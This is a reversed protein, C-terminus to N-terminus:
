GKAIMAKANKKYIGKPKRGRKPADPKKTIYALIDALCKSCFQCEDLPSDDDIVDGENDMNHIGIYKMTGPEIDKGCRDCTFVIKRM